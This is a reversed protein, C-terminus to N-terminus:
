ERSIPIGHCTDSIKVERVNGGPLFIYHRKRFIHLLRVQWLNIAVRGGPKAIVCRTSYYRFLLHAVQILSFTSILKHLYVAITFTQIRLMYTSQYKMRAYTVGAFVFIVIVCIKYALLKKSLQYNVLTSCLTKRNLLRTRKQILFTLTCLVVPRYKTM